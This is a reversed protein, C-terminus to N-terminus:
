RVRHGAVATAASYLANRLMRAEAYSILGDAVLEYSVAKECSSPGRHVSRIGRVPEQEIQCAAYHDMMTCGSSDSYNTVGSDYGDQFVVTASVESSCMDAFDPVGDGDTDVSVVTIQEAAGGINMSIGREVDGNLIMMSFLAEYEGALPVPFSVGSAFLPAAMAALEPFCELNSGNMDGGWVLYASSDAQGDSFYTYAHSSPGSSVLTTEDCRTVIPTEILLGQGDYLEISASIVAESFQHLTPGIFDAPAQRDLELTALFTAKPDLQTDGELSNSLSTLRGEITLTDTLIQAFTQLPLLAACATLLLFSKTINM